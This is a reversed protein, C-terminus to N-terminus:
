DGRSFLNTHQCFYRRPGDDGQRESWFGTVREAGEAFGFHCHRETGDVLKVTRSMFRPPLVELWYDFMSRDIEVREGISMRRIFEAWEDLTHDDYSYVKAAHQEAHM